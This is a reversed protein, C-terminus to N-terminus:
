ALAARVIRDILEAYSWGAQAAAAPLGADPAIGPNPNVELIM